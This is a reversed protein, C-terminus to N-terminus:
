HFRCKIIQHCSDKSSLMRIASVQPIKPKTSSQVGNLFHSLERPVLSIWDNKPPCPLVFNRQRRM